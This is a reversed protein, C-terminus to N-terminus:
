LFSPSNLLYHIIIMGTTLDNALPSIPVPNADHYQEFGSRTKLPGNLLHLAM